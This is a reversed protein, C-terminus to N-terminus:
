GESDDPGHDHVRTVSAEVGRVITVNVHQGRTRVHNAPAINQAKAPVVDQEEEEEETLPEDLSAFARDGPNRLTLQIKGESAAKTVREAESPTVELTVARVLMPGDEGDPSARQDVALVNIDRLITETEVNRGGGERRSALVDVRNNPLIFGAVGAVDDVRVSIARKGNELVAGLSSGGLNEVVRERLITEGPYLTQAAVRGAVDDRSSFSNSPIAEPPLSVMRLDDVRVTEGFPIRTAAIVVASQDTDASRDATREQLWSNALSAAGLATVVSVGLMLVIGSKKM